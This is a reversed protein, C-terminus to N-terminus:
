APDVGFVDDVGKAVAARPLVRDDELRDRRELLLVVCDEIVQRARDVIPALSTRAGLTAASL